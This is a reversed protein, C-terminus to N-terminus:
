TRQRQCGTAPGFSATTATAALVSFRGQSVEAPGETVMCCRGYRAGVPM